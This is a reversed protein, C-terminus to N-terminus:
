RYRTTRPRTSRVWRRARRAHDGQRRGLVRRLRKLRPRLRSRDRPRRQREMGRAHPGPRRRRHRDQRGTRRPRGVALVLRAGARRPAVGLFGYRKLHLSDFVIWAPDNVYGDRPDLYQFPGAMSNYEGAENLFRKGARNVIISRPRTRELRVSRSRQHGTSPTAPCRSSRFGGRRVWTPWTPATHWRWACGTAPTTRRPCRGTCRAACSVGRGAQRGMRVRRHALVVGRRARM